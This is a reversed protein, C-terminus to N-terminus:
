DCVGYEDDAACFSGDANVAFCVSDGEVVASGYRKDDIGQDATNVHDFRRFELHLDKTCQRSDHEILYVRCLEIEALLTQISLDKRTLARSDIDIHWTPRLLIIIHLPRHRLLDLTHYLVPEEDTFNHLMSTSAGATINRLRDRIRTPIHFLSTKTTLVVNTIIPPNYCRANNTDVGIEQSWCKQMNQGKGAVNSLQYGDSSLCFSSCSAAYPYETLTANISNM